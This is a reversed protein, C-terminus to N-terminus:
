EYYLKVTFAEDMSTSTLQCVVQGILPVEIILGQRGTINSATRDLLVTGDTEKLQYRYTTTSTTPTIIIHKLLNRFVATTTALGTSSAVTISLNEVNIKRQYKSTTPTPM